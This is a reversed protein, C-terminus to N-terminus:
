YTVTDEPQNITLSRSWPARKVIFYNATDQKSHGSQLTNSYICQFALPLGAAWMSSCMLASFYIAFKWLDCVPRSSKKKKKQIRSNPCCLQSISSRILPWVPCSVPLQWGGTPVLKPRYEKPKGLFLPLLCSLSSVSTNINVPKTDKGRDKTWHIGVLSLDKKNNEM